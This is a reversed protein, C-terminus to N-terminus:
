VHGFPDTLTGGRDGYFKDEVPRTATAGHAVARNFLADVDEVYLVISVPTGGYADPAKIGMPPYPDALMIPATGIRIEAHGIRGGPVDFRMSESAGFAKKYFEIARAAGNVILY